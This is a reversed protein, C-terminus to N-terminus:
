EDELVEAAEDYDAEPEAEPPAEEPIEPHELDWDGPLPEAGIVHLPNIGSVYLETEEYEGKDMGQLVLTVALKKTPPIKKLEWTVKGDPRVEVPGPSLSGRDLADRPLVAHLNLSRAVPTYNYIDLTVRHFGKEYEIKEDIWVVDMIKTITASIDPVRKRGLVKSSREAMKPLIRQVIEFKERAKIRREKKAMHGRLRRGAEKLALELEEVIEPIPSIAEKSESTFPVKTSCIHLLLVAPGFPVGKGGRQELGYRRWDVEAVAQTTACSGGAYLLPVRNAFRLVEVPQDPPLDGGYVIGVEVQFPHGAYVAAERSVPPCYFEPKADGLVNKLAKRILKEGIPSLCDTPPAMLKVGRAAALVRKAEDLTIERPRRSYNVQAADLIERATRDSVRTFEQTLFSTMRGARTEKAMALLTGLEVGYLHPPIERPPAPLEGTAREFVLPEGEPPRFTIRAHPNALATGRLYDYISQKGFIYRGRLWMEVRTGHDKGEWIVFEERHARPQNRKTDITLEVEYAVDQEAVKSRIIVPRGSSLQAYLVAGSIGIGQQGRAQINRHFRSGYLLRGFVNGVEKKVIGPGNDEVAIRYENGDARDVQVLLDPLIDADQSADLSNHLFIVGRGGLFKESGPVSFDYVFKHRSEVKHVARVELLSLDGSVLRDLFARQGYPDGPWENRPIPEAELSLSSFRAITFHPRRYIGGHPPLRQRSMPELAEIVEVFGTEM